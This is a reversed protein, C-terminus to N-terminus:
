HLDESKKEGNFKRFGEFEPVNPVSFHGSANIVYDFKEPPLVTDEELRKVRVCFNDTSANYKVDKVIHQFKVYRRLDHKKWRGKIYDFLVERPPFSPIQKGFHEEFLYDPFELSAEKPGNSWLYRYM